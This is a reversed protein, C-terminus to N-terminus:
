WFSPPVPPQKGPSDQQNQWCHLIGLSPQRDAEPVEYRASGRLLNGGENISSVTTIISGKNTNNYDNNNHNRTCFENLGLKFNVAPFYAPSTAAGVPFLDHSLRSQPPLFNHQDLFLRQQTSAPLTHIPDLFQTQNMSSLVPACPNNDSAAQQRHQIGPPVEYGSHM